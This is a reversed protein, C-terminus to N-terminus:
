VRGYCDEIRIIDDEGFYQGLQVEIVLLTDVESKNTLRHKAGKPIFLYDGSTVDIFSNELRVKGIGKIIIWHEERREHKQLSLSAKPEVSIIKSQFVENLLTTKYFGWPRKVIEYNISTKNADIFNLSLDLQIDQLLLFQLGNKTVLNVLEKGKGIVPLFEIKSDQFIELACSFDDHETIYMCDKTYCKNISDELELGKILGRRIDGDTLTGKVEDKDNLVILFGSKNDNIKIIANMISDIDRIIYKNFKM